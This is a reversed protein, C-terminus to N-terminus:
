APAAADASAAAPLPLVPRPLTIEAPLTKADGTKLFELLLAMVDPRHRAIPAIVGHGGHIALLVRGNPFYPAIELTNEVPTNLDWDGQAFVVPIDCSVPLRFDDGV